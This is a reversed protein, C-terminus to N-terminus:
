IQLYLTCSSSYSHISTTVDGVVSYPSLIPNCTGFKSSYSEPIKSNLQKAEDAEALMVLWVEECLWMHESEASKTSKRFLWWYHLKSM